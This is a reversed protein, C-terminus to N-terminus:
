PKLAKRILQMCHPADNKEGRVSREKAFSRSLRSLMKEAAAPDSDFRCRDFDIIFIKGESNCLINRINLDTHVVKENFFLQLTKGVAGLVEDSLAHEAMLEALNKTDPLVALIIDCYVRTLSRRRKAVLPEPVPLGVSLMYQLMRFENFSRDADPAFRCFSDKIVKGILGGRLYKRLCLKEEIGSKGPLSFLVTQGRGGKFVLEPDKERIFSLSFANHLLDIDIKGDSDSFFRLGRQSILYDSGESSLEFAPDAKPILDASM